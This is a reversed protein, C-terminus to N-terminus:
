ACSGRDEPVPSTAPGKAGDRGIRATLDRVDAQLAAFQQEVIARSGGVLYWGPPLCAADILMRLRRRVRNRIVAPGLSRGLAFAM